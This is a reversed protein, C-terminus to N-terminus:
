AALARGVRARQAHPGVRGRGHQAAEGLLRSALVEEALQVSAPQLGGVRRAGAQEAGVGWRARLHCEEGLPVRDEDDARRPTADDVPGDRRRVEVDLDAPRDRARRLLDLQRRREGLRPQVEADVGRRREGVLDALALVDLHEVDLAALARVEEGEVLLLQLPAELAPEVGRRRPREHAVCVGHGPQVPLEVVLVHVREHLDHAVGDPAVVREAQGARRLVVLVGAVEPVDVARLVEVADQARVLDGLALAPRRQVEEVVRAEVGVEDQERVLRPRARAVVDQQARHVVEDAGRGGARVVDVGRVGPLAGIDVDADVARLVPEGHGDGVAHGGVGLRLERLLGAEVRARARERAAEDLVAAVPQRAVEVVLAGLRLVM